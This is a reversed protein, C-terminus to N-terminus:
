TRRELNLTRPGALWRDVPGLLLRVLPYALALMVAASAMPEWDIVRIFYISACSWAILALGAIVACFNVYDSMPGTDPLVREVGATLGLGMLYVLSWYGLPGYSLVDVSLGAAFVFTSPMLTPSTRAWYHIAAFPLLPLAFHFSQGLGWPMVCLLVFLVVTIPPTVRALTGM